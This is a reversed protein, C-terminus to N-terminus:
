CIKQRKNTANTVVSVHSGGRQCIRLADSLVKAKPGDEFRKQTSKSGGTDTAVITYPFGAHMEGWINGLGRRRARCKKTQCKRKAM